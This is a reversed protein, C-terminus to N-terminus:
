GQTNSIETLNFSADMNKTKGNKLRGSVIELIVLNGKKRYIGDFSIFDKTQLGMKKLYHELGAILFCDVKLPLLLVVSYISPGHYLQALKTYKYVEPEGTIERARPSLNSLDGIPKLRESDFDIEAVLRKSGEDFIFFRGGINKIFKVYNLFGLTSRYRATIQPFEGIKEGRSGVMKKGQEILRKSVAITKKGKHRKRVKKHKATAEQMLKICVKTKEEKKDLKKTVGLPKIDVPRKEWLTNHLLFAVFFGLCLSIFSVRGMM